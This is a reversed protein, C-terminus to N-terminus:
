QSLGLTYSGAGGSYYRVRAYVTISGSGANRYTATDVAGTGLTSSAIQTGSSNYLYLDYDATGPPTLRATLTKGAGLTVLFYDTDSSSSLTGNVTAPNASVVNATGRTNNSEVENM